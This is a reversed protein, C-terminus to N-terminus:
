PRTEVVRWEKVATWRRFLDKGYEEAKERTSFTLNNSRWPDSGVQVEVKFVKRNERHFKYYAKLFKHDQQTLPM